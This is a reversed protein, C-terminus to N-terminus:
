GSQQRRSRFRSRQSSFFDANDPRVECLTLASWNPACLLGSLAGMLQDFRLGANPRSNEALPMDVFDLAHRGRECEHRTSEGQGCALPFRM